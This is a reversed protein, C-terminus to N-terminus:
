RYRRWLWVATWVLLTSAFIAGANMPPTFGGKAALWWATVIFVYANFSINSAFQQAASEHEDILRYYVITIMTTGALLVLLVAALIPPIPANSLLADIARPANDYGLQQALIIPVAGFVVAFGFTFLLVRRVKRESPGVPEDPQLLYTKIRRALMWGLLGLLAILGALVLMATADFTGREVTKVIFGTLVGAVFILGLAIAGQIAFGLLPRDSKGLLNWNNLTM